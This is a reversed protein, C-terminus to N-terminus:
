NILFGSLMTLSLYLQYHATSPFGNQPHDSDFVVLETRYNLANTFAALLSLVMLLGVWARWDQSLARLKAKADNVATKGDAKDAIKMVRQFEKDIDIDDEEGKKSSKKGKGNGGGLGGFSGLGDLGGNLLNNIGSSNSSLSSKSSKSSKSPTFSSSSSRQKRISKAGFNIDDLSFSPNRAQNRNFERLKEKKKKPKKKGVKL